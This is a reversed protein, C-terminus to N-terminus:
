ALVLIIQAVWSTFSEWVSIDFFVSLFTDAGFFAFMGAGVQHAVRLDVRHAFRHFFFANLMSVPIIAAMEGFWIASSAGYQAALGITVLQTKDGFEGAAMMLFIPLFGGLYNPVDYGFVSVDLGEVAEPDKAPGSGSPPISRYLLVAFLFFLFGTFLELYLEPLAGKLANGLIIELITWGGFATAAAAVVIWPNFRTSLGAIILQGKEGPLVALQATMAIVFIEIWGIM